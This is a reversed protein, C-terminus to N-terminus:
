TGEEEGTEFKGNARKLKKATTSKNGHAFQWGTEYAAEEERAMM